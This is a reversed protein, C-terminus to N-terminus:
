DGFSPAAARGIPPRTLVRLYGATADNITVTARGILVGVVVPQGTEPDLVIVAAGSMGEDNREPYLSTEVYSVERPMNWRPPPAIVEGRLFTTLEVSEGRHGVLYVETGPALTRTFDFAGPPRSLLPQGDALAFEVWDDAWSSGQGRRVTAVEHWGDLVFAQRDDPGLVHDCTLFANPGVVIATGQTSATFIPVVSVDVLSRPIGEVTRELANHPGPATCAVLAALGVWASAATAHPRRPPDTRAHDAM